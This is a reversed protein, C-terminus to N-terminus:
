VVNERGCSSSTIAAICPSNDSLPTVLRACPKWCCLMHKRPTRTPSSMIRRRSTCRISRKSACLNSSKSKTSTQPALARLDEQELVVYQGKEYEFGKVLDAPAVPANEGASQFVRQVPALPRSETANPRAPIKAAPETLSRLQAGPQFRPQVLPAGSPEPEEAPATEPHRYLQRLKVREPRAARVLRVPMSVLGFTLHGKWVTSAM